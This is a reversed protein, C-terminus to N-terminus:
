CSMSCSQEGDFKLGNPVLSWLEPDSFDMMVVSTRGHM